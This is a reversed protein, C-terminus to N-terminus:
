SKVSQLRSISGLGTSSLIRGREAPPAKANLWGETTIFLGACGFGVVARLVLWVPGNIALPMVEADRSFCDAFYLLAEQRVLKEPHVIAGKIKAEPLRM